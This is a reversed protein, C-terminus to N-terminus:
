LKDSGLNKAEANKQNGLAENELEQQKMKASAVLSSEIDERIPLLAANRYLYNGAEVSPLGEMRRVENPTLMANNIQTNYASIQNVLSTKLLSKLNFQIYYKGRDEIKFLRQLYEQLTNVIPLIAQTTYMTTLKEIDSSGEGTLYDVPIGFLEAIIKQTFQRNEELQTSKNDNLGTDIVEFNVGAKKLIPKSANEIGSYNQLFRAIIEKQEEPNSDPKAASTDIVLRKGVNNTFAKDTYEDLSTATDFTKRAIDFISHGKLGDYDFPAPIHLIQYDDYTRLGGQEAVKFMKRNRENRYVEVSSPNIRFISAVEGTESDRWLKLFVNGSFYDWVIQTFFLSHMEELNPMKLVDAIPHDVKQHTAESYVGVSLSAISNAINNICALTTSDREAKKATITTFDYSTDLKYKAKKNWRKFLNM